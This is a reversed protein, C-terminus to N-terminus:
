RWISLILSALIIGCVPYGADILYLRLSKNQWIFISAIVALAICSVIIGLTIGAHADRSQTLVVLCALSLCALFNALLTLGMKLPMDSMQGLAIKHREIEKMWPHKFLLSYWAYGLFFFVLSAVAVALYNIDSLFSFNM